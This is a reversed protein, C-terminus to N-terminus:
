ALSRSTSSALHVDESLAREVAEGGDAAEAVFTM